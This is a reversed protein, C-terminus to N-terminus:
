WSSRSASSLRLEDPQDRQGRDDSGRQLGPRDDHAAQDPRRRDILDLDEVFHGAVRRRVQRASLVVLSLTYTNYLLFYFLFFPQAVLALVILGQDGHGERTRGAPAALDLAGGVRHRVAPVPDTRAVQRAVEDELLALALAASPRRDNARARHARDPAARPPASRARACRRRSRHDLGPPFPVPSERCCAASMRPPACRIAPGRHIARPDGTGRDPRAGSATAGHSLALAVERRVDPDPDVAMRARAPDWEARTPRSGERGREARREGSGGGARRAGAGGSLTDPRAAVRAAIAEQVEPSGSRAMSPFCAPCIPTTSTAPSTPWWCATGHGDCSMGLALDAFVPFAAEALEAVSALVAPDDDARVTELLSPFAREPTVGAFLEVAARRVLLSPDDLRMARWPSCSTQTSCSASPRSPRRARRPARTAASSRSCTAGPARVRSRGFTASSVSASARTSRAACAEPSRRLGPRARAAVLADSAAARLDGDPDREAIEVLEPTLDRRGARRVALVAAGRVGASSHLLLEVLLERAGAGAIRALAKTADCVNEGRELRGVLRAPVGLRELGM